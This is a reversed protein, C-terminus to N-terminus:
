AGGGIVACYVYREASACLHGQGDPSERPDSQLHELKQDPVVIWKGTERHMAFWTGAVNKFPTPYCDGKNCCSKDRPQGNNPMNWTSYFKGHLAEDEPPHSHTSGMGRGAGGIPQSRATIVAIALLILVVIARIM